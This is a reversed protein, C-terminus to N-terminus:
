VGQIRTGILVLNLHRTVEDDLPAAAAAAAAAPGEAAAGAAAAASSEAAASNAAAAEAARRSAAAAAKEERDKSVEDPYLNERLRQKLVRVRGSLVEFARDAKVYRDRLAGESALFEKSRPSVRIKLLAIRAEDFAEGKSSMALAQKRIIPYIREEYARDFEALNPFWGKVLPRNKEWFRKEGRVQKVCNELLINCEKDQLSSSWGGCAAVASAAASAAPVVGDDGSRLSSPGRAVLRLSYPNWLLSNVAAGGVLRPEAPPRGGLTGNYPAARDLGNACTHHFPQVGIHPQGTTAEASAVAAAAAAAASASAAPVVGADGSSLGSAVYSGRM